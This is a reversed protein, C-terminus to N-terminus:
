EEKEEESQLGLQHIVLLVLLVGCELMGLIVLGM